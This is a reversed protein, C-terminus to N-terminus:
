YREFNILENLKILRGKLHQIEFYIHNQSNILKSHNKDYKLENPYSIGIEIEQIEIDLDENRSELKNIDKETTEKWSSLTKLMEDKIDM